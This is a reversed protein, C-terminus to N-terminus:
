IKDCNNWIAEKKSWKSGKAERQWLAYVFSFFLPGEGGKGPAGGPTNKPTM